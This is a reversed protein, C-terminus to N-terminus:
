QVYQMRVMKRIQHMMFSRGEVVLRAYQRPLPTSTPSAAGASLPDPPLPPLATGVGGSEDNGAATTNPADVVDIVGNCFFRNITRM